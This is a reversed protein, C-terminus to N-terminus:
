KQTSDINGNQNPDNSNDTKAPASKAVMESLYKGDVKPDEELGSLKRAENVQFFSAPDIDGLFSFPMSSKFTYEYDVIEKIDMWESYISMIPAVVKSILKKRLPNLLVSEKVDWIARVYSSAQRLGGGTSIGALLSDWSNATIIKEEWRKDADIFSGDQHTAYPKFDVDTLGTESSIVAIRGTKGEGVHSFMIKKATAQAEEDTMSSKLILMGGLIMNNDLNDINYQATKGELVQYRLGSVSAPMGYFKIGSVENKFHIMTRETGDDAKLWCSSKDLANPDFLPIIEADAITGNFGSKNFLPTIVVNTPYQTKGDPVGLRCELMNHNYIKIFPLKGLKGRCIEIFHNGYTREGDVVERLFDDLSQMDNNVSGLWGTFDEPPEKENLTLGNGIISNAISTICANQTTSTLRAELLLQPLDNKKGLFPLFKKGKVVYFSNNGYQIPIPTIADLKFENRVTFEISRQKKEENNQLM